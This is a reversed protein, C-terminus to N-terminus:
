AMEEVDQRQLIRCVMSLIRRDQIKGALQRIEQRIEEIPRQAQHSNDM